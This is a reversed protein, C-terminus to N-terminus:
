KVTNIVAPAGYKLDNTRHCYDCNSYSQGAHGFKAGRKIETGSTTVIVPTFEGKIESNQLLFNEGKGQGLQATKSSGDAFEFKINYGTTEVSGAADGFIKGGAYAHCAACYRNHCHLPGGTLEAVTPPTDNTLKKVSDAKRLNLLFADGAFNVDNKGYIVIYGDSDVTQNRYSSSDLIFTNFNYTAVKGLALGDDLPKTPDVAKITGGGYNDTDDIRVYAYPTYPYGSEFDLKGKRAASVTVWFSNDKCTAVGSGNFVCAKYTTVGTNKNLDYTVYLYDSGIGLAFPSRVGSTKTNEALLIPTAKDANKKVALILGDGGFMVWDKTLTMIKTPMTGSAGLGNSLQTLDGTLLDLRYINGDLLYYANSGGLKYPKGKLAALTISNNKGTVPKESITQAAKNMIYLKNDIVLASTATGGIDGIFTYASTSTLTVGTFPIFKADVPDEGCASCAAKSPLMAKFKYDSSDYVVIGSAAQGYSTYYSAILTKNVFDEPTNSEDASPFVIVKKSNTNTAILFRKTGLYNIETYSPATLGSVSSHPKETPLSDSMTAMDHVIKLSARKPSGGKVYYLSDVYLDSYSGDAPNYGVLTASPQPKGINASMVDDSQTLVTGPNAPNIIRVNKVGGLKQHNVDGYFLYSSQGSQAGLANGTTTPTTTPTTTTGTSASGSSSSGSGGGDLCGSLLVAAVLAPLLGVSKKVM